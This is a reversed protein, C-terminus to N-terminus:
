GVSISDKVFKSQNDVFDKLTDEIAQLEKLLYLKQRLKNNGPISKFYGAYFKRFAPIAKEGKYKVHRRFHRICINVRDTITNETAIKNQELLEKAERFVWPSGIAGRAIMVGDAKTERYAKIVDESTMVDGNLIVPIDVDAKVKDIYSWDAEGSHGQSRTRCHLTLAVAGVDEIRKAVEEIVISEKDWGLRTKVTVPLNYERVADVVAKVMEQMYAPDKLLGSGAGRGSVKKVWCGANIDLIDPSFEAAIKAAEVMSKISQGYIQIGAPREEPLLRMKKLARKCGRTMGDSNVFETYVIDAGMEACLLRFSIDTVDEMPALLLPRHFIHKGIKFM